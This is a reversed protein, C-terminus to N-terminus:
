LGAYFNLLKKAENEWSYKGVVAERGRQGMAGAEDPHELLWDIAEAIANPELPDVMLGAGTDKVFQEWFPFDSAIVPLGAAMYEFLKVPYSDLYNPEPHLVLLGVRARALADRVDNRGLWGMFEVRDYGPRSQMELELASPTFSGGLLMRADAQAMGMADVM